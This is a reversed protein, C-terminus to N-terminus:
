RRLKILCHRANPPNSLVPIRPITTTCLFESQSESASPFRQPGGSRKRKNVKPRYVSATPQEQPESVQGAHRIPRPVGELSELDILRLVRKSGKRRIATSRIVEDKLMEFLRYRPIGYIQVVQKPVAYRRGDRVRVGESKTLGYAVM